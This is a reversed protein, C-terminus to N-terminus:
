DFNFSMQHRSPAKQRQNYFHKFLKGNLIKRVREPVTGLVLAIQRNTMGLDASVFIWDYTRQDIKSGYGGIAGSHRRQQWFARGKLVMDTVNAKSDGKFLHDPNLCAPTDCRHCIMVTSPIPGNVAMWVLRHGAVRKGRCGIVAYGRKLRGQYIWCGADNKKTRSFISNLRETTIQM